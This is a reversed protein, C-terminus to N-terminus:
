PKRQVASSGCDMIATKEAPIRWELKERDITGGADWLIPCIGNELSYETVARIYKERSEQEKGVTGAGYEGIIVPVGRDIFKKKLLEFEAEMVSYDNETGWTDRFGWSCGPEAITFVTPGYQHVSVAYRKDSLKDPFYKATLDINTCYGALLLMRDYNKSGSSRVTKIFLDNLKYLLESGEKDGISFAVENNSEFVLRYSKDKFRLCIQKWLAEYRKATSKYDEAANAIWTEDHHANLIVFMGDDLAWDVVEEVRDMWEKDVTYAPAEGIHEDWTVPIRITEFGEDHFYKIMEETTVPNGWATEWAEPTGDGWKVIWDGSADLSNGLNIGRGMAAVYEVPTMQRLKKENGDSAAGCFALAMVAATIVALFNKLTKKM